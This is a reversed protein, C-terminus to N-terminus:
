RRVRKMPETELAHNLKQLAKKEIRSVYSRSIGLRQAVERQPHCCGNLLGYRLEIVIKERPSLTDLLVLQLQEVQLRLEVEDPVEEIYSGLVDSLSIENGERDVGIPEQISVENKKKKEARISMLIENAINIQTVCRSGASYWGGRYAAEDNNPRKCRKATARRLRPM